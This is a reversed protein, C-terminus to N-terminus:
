SFNEATKFFVYKVISSNITYYGFHDPSSGPLSFTFAPRRSLRSRTRDPDPGKQKARNRKDFVAYEPEYSLQSLAANADMTLCM